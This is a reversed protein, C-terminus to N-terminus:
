KAERKKAKRGQEPALIWSSGITDPADKQAQYMKENQM